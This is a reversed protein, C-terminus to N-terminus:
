PKGTGTPVWLLAQELTRHQTIVSCQCLNHLPQSSEEKSMKLLWMFTLRPVRNQTDRSPCSNPWLSCPTGALRLWGTTRQHQVVFCWSLSHNQLHHHELAVKVSSDKWEQPWYQLLSPCGYIVPLVNAHKQSTQIRLQSLPWWVGNMSDYFWWLQFLDRLDNLGFMLRDVSFCGGWHLMEVNRSYRWSLSEVVERCLRNWHTM